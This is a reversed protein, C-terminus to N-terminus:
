VRRYALETIGLDSDPVEQQPNVAQEAWTRSIYGPLPHEHDQIDSDFTACSGMFHHFSLEQGTATWGHHEKPCGYYTIGAEITSKCLQCESFVGHGVFCSKIQSSERFEEVNVNKIPESAGRQPESDSPEGMLGRLLEPCGDDYTSTSGRELLIATM